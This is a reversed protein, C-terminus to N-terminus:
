CLLIHDTMEPKLMTDGKGRNKNKTCTRPIMLKRVRSPCSTPEMGGTQNNQSAARADTAPSLQSAPGSDQAIMSEPPDRVTKDYTGERRSYGAKNRQEPWIESLIAGRQKLGGPHPM